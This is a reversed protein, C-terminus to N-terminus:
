SCSLPLGAGSATATAYAGIAMFAANGISVQGARGQIWDLGLASIAYIMVLGGLYLDFRSGALVLWFVGVVFVIWGLLDPLWHNAVEGSYKRLALVSPENLVIGEDPAYVVTNVTGLDIALDEAFFNRLIHM